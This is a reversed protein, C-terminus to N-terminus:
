GRGVGKDLDDISRQLDVAQDMAVEKAHQLRQRPTDGTTYRRQDMAQRQAIEACVRAEVGHPLSVATTAENKM